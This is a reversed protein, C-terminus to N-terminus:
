KITALRAKVGESVRAPFFSGDLVEVFSKREAPSSSQLQEALMVIMEDQEQLTLSKM